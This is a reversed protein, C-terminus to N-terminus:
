ENIRKAVAASFLRLGDLDPLDGFFLLFYGVGLDAYSRVRELCEAPTGVLSNKKFDEQTVSKPKLKQIKKQLEKQNAAIIIQGAPWCSKEIERFDRGVTKCHKELVQLKHKYLELSPLYGFDCRDAHRATVRLTLEEGCGGVTIPPHPKQLPKPECVASNIRYNKGEYSSKEEAWLRKIIELAEGLREIRVKSEPFPLGYALYEEKQVGAGIGFELRGNSLVDVTAAMKALLAPNRFGNSTVMTGGRISTTVSLLASLMTWCELIPTQGFMLHDDLWFCDYGLRECEFVVDRVASFLPKGTMVNAQFAYFPLFVGFRIRRM